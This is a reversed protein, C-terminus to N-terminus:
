EPVEIREMLDAEMSCYAIGEHHIRGDKILGDAGFDDVMADPNDTYLGVCKAQYTYIVFQHGDITEHIWEQAAEQDFQEDAVAEDFATALSRIEDWYEKRTMM